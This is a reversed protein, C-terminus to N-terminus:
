ARSFWRNRQILLVCLVLMASLLVLMRSSLVPVPSMPGTTAEGCPDGAALGLPDEAGFAAVLGGGGGSLPSGFVAVLGLVGNESPALHTPLAACGSPEDDLPIPMTDWPVAISSWGSGDWRWGDNFALGGELDFGGLMAIEGGGSTASHAFARPSPGCPNLGGCVQSWSGGAVDFTWTSDVAVLDSGNFEVGGFMVFQSGDWALEGGFLPGPGCPNVGGCVQSWSVGDYIWTDDHLPSGGFGGYLLAVVGNGAMAVGSRMGPGCSATDCLQVWGAGTLLWTDGFSAAANGISDDQGGFLLVGAPGSAVGPAIRVGQPCPGPGGPTGCGGTWGSGDHLWTSAILGDAQGSWFVEVGSHTAAGGFAGISDGVNLPIAREVWGWDAAAPAALAVGIALRVLLSCWGIRSGGM